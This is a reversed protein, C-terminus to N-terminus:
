PIGLFKHVQISLSVNESGLHRAATETFARLQQFSPSRYGNKPTVPQICMPCNIKSLERSYWEINEPKTKSTVVVKAFVAVGADSLIKITELELDVLKRWNEAAGASEDKIDCCCYDLSHSIRAVHTPMSGNTELYLKFGENKLSEVTSVLFEPQFLPEGGTLSIVHTDPSYLRHAWEVIFSPEIPNRFRLKKNTLTVIKLHTPNPQIAHPTKRKKPTAGGVDEGALPGLDLTVGQSASLEVANLRYRGGGM